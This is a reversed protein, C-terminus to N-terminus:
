LCLWRKVVNRLMSLIVSRALHVLVVCTRRTVYRKLANCLWYHVSSMMVVLSPMGFLDWIIWVTWWGSMSQLTVTVRV